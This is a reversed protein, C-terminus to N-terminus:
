EIFNPVAVWVFKDPNKFKKAITQGNEFGVRNEYYIFKQCLFKKDERWIFALEMTHTYGDPINALIDTM